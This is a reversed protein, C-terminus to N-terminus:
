SKAFHVVIGDLLSLRLNHKDQQLFVQQNRYFTPIYVNMFKDSYLNLVFIREIKFHVSIYNEIIQKVYKYNKYCSWM